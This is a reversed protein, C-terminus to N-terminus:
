ASSTALSSRKESKGQVVMITQQMLTCLMEKGEKVAFVETKSIVLTHGAKV